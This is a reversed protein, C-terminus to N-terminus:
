PSFQSSFLSLDQITILLNFIQWDRVLNPKPTLGCIRATQKQFFHCCQCSFTESNDLYHNFSLEPPNASFGVSATHDLCPLAMTDAPLSLSLSFPASCFCVRAWVSLHKELAPPLAAWHILPMKKWFSGAYCISHLYVIGGVRVGFLSLYQHMQTKKKFDLIVNWSRCKPFTVSHWLLINHHKCKCKYM